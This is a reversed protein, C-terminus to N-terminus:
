SAPQWSGLAGFELARVRGRAHALKLEVCAKRLREPEADGVRRARGRPRRRAESRRGRGCGRGTGRPRAAAARPRAPSASVSATPEPRDKVPPSAPLHPRRRGPAGDHGQPAGSARPLQPLARPQSQARHSARLGLRQPIAPRFEHKPPPPSGRFNPPFKSNPPFKRFNPPFKSSRFNPSRNAADPGDSRLAKSRREHSRRRMRRPRAGTRTWPRARRGARM